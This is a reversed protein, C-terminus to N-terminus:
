SDITKVTLSPANIVLLQQHDQLLFYLSLGTNTELMVSKDKFLEEMLSQPLPKKDVDVLAMQHTDATPWQSVFLQPQEVRNLTKAIHSGLSELESVADNNPQATSSTQLYQAVVNDFMWGLGITAILVVTILSVILRRM